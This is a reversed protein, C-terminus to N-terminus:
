DLNCAWDTYAVWHRPLHGDQYQAGCAMICAATREDHAIQSPGGCVSGDKCLNAPRSWVIKNHGGWLWHDNNGYWCLVNHVVVGDRCDGSPQCCRCVVTGMHQSWGGANAAAVAALSFAIAMLALYATKKLM